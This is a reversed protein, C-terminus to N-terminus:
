NKEDEQSSTSIEFSEVKRLTNLIKNYSNFHRDDM